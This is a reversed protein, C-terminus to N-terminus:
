GGQAQAGSREIAPQKGREREKYTPTPFFSLQFKASSIAKNLRPHTGKM